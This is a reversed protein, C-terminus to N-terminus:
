SLGQWSTVTLSGASAPQCYGARVETMRLAAFSGSLLTNRWLVVDGGWVGTMRLAAFSGSLITNKWLIVDM